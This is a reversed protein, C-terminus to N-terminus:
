VCACVRGREIKRESERIHTHLHQLLDCKKRKMYSLVHVAERVGTKERERERERKREIM